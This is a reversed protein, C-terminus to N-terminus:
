RRSMVRYLNIGFEADKDDVRIDAVSKVHSDVHLWIKNEGFYHDLSDLKIKALTVIWTLNEKPSYTM